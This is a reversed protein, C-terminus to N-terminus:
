IGGLNRSDSMCAFNPVEEIEVLVGAKLLFRKFNERLAEVPFLGVAARRCADEVTEYALGRQDEPWEDLADFVDDLSSIEQIFHKRKMFLPRGFAAHAM